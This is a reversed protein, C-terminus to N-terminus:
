GGRLIGGVASRVEAVIAARIPIMEEDVMTREPHRFTLRVAVSKRGAELPQGQFVDFV